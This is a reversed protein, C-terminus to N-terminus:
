DSLQGFFVSMEYCKGSPFVSIRFSIADQSKIIHLVNNDHCVGNM